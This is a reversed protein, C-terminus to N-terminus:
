PQKIMKVFESDFGAIDKRSILRSGGSIGVPIRCSKFCGRGMGGNDVMIPLLILAGLASTFSPDLIGSLVGTHTVILVALMASPPTINM